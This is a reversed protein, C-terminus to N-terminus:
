LYEAFRPTLRTFVAYGLALTAVAVVMPLVYRAGMIQVSWQVKPTVVAHRVDEIIQAVPNVLVWARLRDPVLSIPYIVASAYILVQMAIEWIHGMDRYFVFLSSLLLALGLVFLYLEVMLPLLAFSRWGLSLKGLPAAIVIILALNILFTMVASLTSAIVLIVRPFYAKRIMGGNSAISNMAAITTEAFFTWLVIAVLLQLIFNDTGRGIHFLKDFVVYMIGFLMMPKVLSWVYGLVSGTYKLKFQSVALERTLNAHRRLTGRRPTSSVAAAADRVARSSEASTAM